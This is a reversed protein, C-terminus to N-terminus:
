LLQEYVPPEVKKRTIEVLELKTMDVVATKIKDYSVCQKLYEMLEKKSEEKKMNIFDVMIIGSLNRLRLQYAIEKAAEKNVCLITDEMRKGKINKGTNVDIVVMAETPEIVLYAGSKLWIKEASIDEISKEISYLKSLLLLNDEYLSIRCTDTMHNKIMYERVEDYININDTIIESIEDEYAGKIYNLYSTEAKKLVSFCQRTVAMNRINTWEYLLHKLESVIDEPESNIANTRVVLGINEIKEIKKIDDNYTIDALYEDLFKNLSDSIDAKFKDDKINRSYGIGSNGVKMVLNRGSISINSTLVPFKTKVASKELQVIILDGECLKDNNKNNLFVIDKNEEISFYGVLGKQYEVFAANINKVINKVRGVYIDGINGSKSDIDSFNVQCFGKSDHVGCFIKNKGKYEINTIILKSM